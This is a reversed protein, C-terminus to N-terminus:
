RVILAGDPSDAHVALQALLDYEVYTRIIIYYEALHGSGYKNRIRVVHRQIITINRSPKDCLSGNFHSHFEVVQVLSSARVAITLHMKRSMLVKGIFIRVLVANFLVGTHIHLLTLIVKDILLVAIRVIGHRNSSRLESRYFGSIKHDEGSVGEVTVIGM